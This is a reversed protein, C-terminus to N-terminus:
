NFYFFIVLLFIFQVSNYFVTFTSMFSLSLSLSFMVWSLQGWCRWDSFVFSIYKLGDHAVVCVISSLCCLLKGMSANWLCTVMKEIKKNKILWSVLNSLSLMIISFFFLSTGNFLKLIVFLDQLFVGKGKWSWDM